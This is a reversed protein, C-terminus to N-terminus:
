KNYNQARLRFFLTKWRLIQERFLRDELGFSLRNKLYLLNHKTEKNNQQEEYHPIDNRPCYPTDDGPAHYTHKQEKDAQTKLPYVRMLYASGSRSECAVHRKEEHRSHHPDHLLPLDDTQVEGPPETNKQERRESDHDAAPQSHLSHRM